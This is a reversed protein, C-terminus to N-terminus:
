APTGIGRAGPVTGTSSLPKACGKDSPMFAVHWHGTDLVTEVLWYVIAAPDADLGAEGGPPQVYVLCNEPKTDLSVVGQVQNQAHEFSAM